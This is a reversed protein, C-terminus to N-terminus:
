PHLWGIILGMALISLFRNGFKINILKSPIQNLTDHIAITTASIGVFLVLSTAIGAVIWSGRYYSHYLFTVFAITYSTILAGIFLQSVNFSMEKEFRKTDIKSLKKWTKGIVADSYYITGIVMSSVAGLLVAWYNIHIVM